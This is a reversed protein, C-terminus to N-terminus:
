KELNIIIKLGKENNEGHSQGQKTEQVYGTYDLM